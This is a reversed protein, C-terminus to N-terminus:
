LNETNHNWYLSYYGSFNSTVNEEYISLLSQKKIPSVLFLMGWKEHFNTHILSTEFQIDHSNINMCKQTM